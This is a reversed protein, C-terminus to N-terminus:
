NAFRRSRLKLALIFAILLGSYFPLYFKATRVAFTVDTRLPIDAIIAGSQDRPLMTATEGSPLFIATIGLNAARVLSRRTAVARIRTLELHQSQESSRGYWGDETINTLFQAGSKVMSAAVHPFLVEFCILSAFPPLNDWRPFVIVSDGPLFEAQGLRIKGLFPLWKQYPIREGFPVLQVKHSSLLSYREGAREHASADALNSRFYFASNYPLLEGDAESKYDTAGTILSLGTSDCWDHIKYRAWGKYRLALPTATEPWVVLDVGSDALSTSVNLYDDLTEEVSKQWKDEVPTNQQIAAVRITSASRVNTLRLVGYLPPLLLVLVYLLITRPGHQGNLMLFGLANLLLVWLSLGYIDGIDAFQLAPAFSSQTLGWVAWPLSLEGTGWFVEFFLYLVVFMGAAFVNGHVKAVKSVAWATISWVTALIAIVAAASAWALAPPAGSNNGIWYLVGGFFLLGSLYGYLLAHKATSNTAAVLFPVM